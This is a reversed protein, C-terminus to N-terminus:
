DRLLHWDKVLQDEPHLAHECRVKGRSTMVHPALMDGAGVTLKIRKIREIGHLKAKGSSLSKQRGKKTM